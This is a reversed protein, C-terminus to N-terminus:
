IRFILISCSYPACFQWFMPDSHWLWLSSISYFAADASRSLAMSPSVIRFKFPSGSQLFLRMQDEAFIQSYFGLQATLKWKTKNDSGIFPPSFIAFSPFLITCYAKPLLPFIQTNPCDQPNQLWIFFSDSFFYLLTYRASPSCNEHFWLLSFQPSFFSLFGTKTFIHLGVWSNPLTTSDRCLM